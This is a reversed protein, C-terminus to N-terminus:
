SQLMTNLGFPGKFYCERKAHTTPTEAALGLLYKVLLVGGLIVYAIMLFRHYYLIQEINLAEEGEGM